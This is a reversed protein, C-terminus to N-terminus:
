FYLLYEFLTDDHNVTIRIGCYRMLCLRHSLFILWPVLSIRKNIKWRIDRVYFGFTDPNQGIPIKATWILDSLVFKGARLDLHLVFKSIYLKYCFLVISSYHSRCVCKALRHYDNALGLNETSVSTAMGLSLRAMQQLLVTSMCSSIPSYRNPWRSPDGIYDFTGATSFPEGILQWNKRRILAFQECLISIAAHPWSAVLPAFVNFPCVTPQENAWCLLIDDSSSQLM